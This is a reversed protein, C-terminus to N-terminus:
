ISYVKGQLPKTLMDAWMEKIPCHVVRMERSDIRDKMFFFKARIHQTKKGSSFQGNKM